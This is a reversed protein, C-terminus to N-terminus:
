LRVSFFIGVEPAPAFPNVGVNLACDRWVNWSGGILPKIFIRGQSAPMGVAVFLDFQRIYLLNVGGYFRATDQYGFGIIPDHELGWVHADVKVTGDKRVEVTPNRSYTTTTGKSTTVTIIHTNENYHLLEKDNKPLTVHPPVLVDNIRHKLWLYGGLLIAAGVSLLVLSHKFHNSLTM